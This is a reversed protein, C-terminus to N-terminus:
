TSAQNSAKNPHNQKLKAKVRLANDEPPRSQTGSINVLSGPFSLRLALM